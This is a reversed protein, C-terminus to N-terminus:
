YLGNFKENHIICEYFRKNIDAIMDVMKPINDLVDSMIDKHNRIYELTLEHALAQAQARTM